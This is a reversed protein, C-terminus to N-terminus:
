LCVPISLITLLGFGSQVKLAYSAPQQWSNLIDFMQVM